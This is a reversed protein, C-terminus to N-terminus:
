TTGHAQTHISVPQLGTLAASGGAIAIKFTALTRATAGVQHAGGHRCCGGHRTMKDVDTAPLVLVLIICLKLVCVPITATSSRSLTSVSWIMGLCNRFRVSRVPYPSTSNKSQRKSAWPLGLRVNERFAGCYAPALMRSAPFFKPQPEDRSCA